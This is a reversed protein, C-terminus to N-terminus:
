RSFMPASQLDPEREEKGLRYFLATCGDATRVPEAFPSFGQERMVWDHEAQSYCSGKGETLRYLTLAYCAMWLAQVWEDASNWSSMLLPEHICVSGGPAVSDRLNRVIQTYEDPLWDHATNSLCYCDAPPVAQFFDGEHFELKESNDETAAALERVVGMANSRDVAIAKTLHPSSVLCALSVYPSGAGIDAFIRAKGLLPKLAAASPNAFNRARSALGLAVDRGIPTDMVTEPGGEGAYLPKSEKAFDGRLQAILIDADDSPGMELYPRRSTSLEAGLCVAAREPVTLQNGRRSVVEMVELLAVYTRAGQETFRFMERFEDVGIERGRLKDVLDLRFAARLACSAEAFRLLAYYKGADM